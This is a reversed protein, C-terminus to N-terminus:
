GHIAQMDSEMTRLPKIVPAADAEITPESVPQTIPEPDAAVAAPPPAPVFPAPPAPPEIPSTPVDPEPPAPAPEATAVPVSVSERAPELGAPADFISQIPIRNTQTEPQPAPEFTTEDATEIPEPSEENESEIEDDATLDPLTRGAAEAEIVPSLFELLNQTITRAIPEDIGVQEQLKQPLEAVTYFGLIVDGITQAYPRYVDAKLQHFDFLNRFIEGAEESDYLKQIPPPLVTYVRNRNKSNPIM